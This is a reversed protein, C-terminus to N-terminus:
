CTGFDGPQVQVRGVGELWGDTYSAIADPEQSFYVKGGKKVTGDHDGSPPSGAGSFKWYPTDVTACYPLDFGEPM